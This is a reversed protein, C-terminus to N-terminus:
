MVLKGGPVSLLSIHIPSYPSIGSNILLPPTIYYTLTIRNTKSKRKHRKWLNPNSVKCRASLESTAQVFKDDTM